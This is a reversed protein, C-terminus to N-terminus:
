NAYIWAGSNVENKISTLEARAAEPSSFNGIAVRSFRSDGEAVYADYGKAKLALAYKSANNSLKFSGVVIHFGSTIGSASKQQVPLDVSETLVEKETAIPTDITKVVATPESESLIDGDDTVEKATSPVNDEIGESSFYSYPSLGSLNDDKQHTGFYIGASISLGVFATVAAARFLTPALKKSQVKKTKEPIHKDIAKHIAQKIEIERQIGSTRFINLGYSAKDYNIEIAPNFQVKAANDLYLRGIGPLNVKKGASLIRKWSRISISISELAQTYSISEHVSIAQALLGDNEKISSNFAVRKSTPRLMNTSPNVEAAYQRTIFAGFEPLIVCEHDFLLRSIHKDITVNM